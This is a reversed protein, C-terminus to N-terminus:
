WPSLSQCLHNPLPKKPLSSKTPIFAVIRVWGRGFREKTNKTGHNISRSKKVVSSVSCVSNEIPGDSYQTRDRGPWDRPRNLGSLIGDELGPNTGVRPNPPSTPWGQIPQTRCRNTPDTGPRSESPVWEPNEMIPRKGLTAAVRPQFVSDRRSLSYFSSRCSTGPFRTAVAGRVPPKHTASTPGPLSNRPREPFFPKVVTPPAEWVESGVKILVRSPFRSM